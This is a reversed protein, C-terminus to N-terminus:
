KLYRGLCNNLGYSHSYNYVWLIMTPAQAKLSLQGVVKLEIGGTEPNDVLWLATSCVTEDCGDEHKDGLGAWWVVKPSTTLSNKYLPPALNLFVQM